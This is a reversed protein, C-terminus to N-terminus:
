HGHQLTSNAPTGGYLVSTRVILAEPLTEAVIREAELKTLGYFNVPNPKDTEAYNGRIGDFVYDTSILVLKAGIKM